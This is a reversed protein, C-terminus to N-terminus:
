RGQGQFYAAWSELKPYDARRWAAQQMQRAQATADPGLPPPEKKYDFDEGTLPHKGDRLAQMYDRQTQLNNRTQEKATMQRETRTGPVETWAKTEKDYKLLFSNANEDYGMRFTEANAGSGKVFVGKAIIDNPQRESRMWGPKLESVPVGLKDATRRLEEQQVQEAGTKQEESRWRVDGMWAPNEGGEPLGLALAADDKRSVTFVVDEARESEAGASFAALQKMMEGEDSPTGKWIVLKMIEKGAFNRLRQRLDPMNNIGNWLLDTAFDVRDQVYQDQQEQTFHKVENYYEPEPKGKIKSFVWTDSKTFNAYDAKLQPDIKELRTMVSDDFERLWNAEEIAWAEAALVPNKGRHQYEFVQRKRGIFGARADTLSAYRERMPELVPKGNEDYGTIRHGSAVTGDGGLVADIFTEPKLKSLMDLLEDEDKGKDKDPDLGAPLWGWSQIEAEDKSDYEPNESKLSALARERYAAMEQQMTRARQIKGPDGSGAAQRAEREFRENLAKGKNLNRNWGAARISKLGSDITGQIGGIYEEPNIGRARLVDLYEQVDKKYVAEADTISMGGIPGPTAAKAWEEGIIKKRGAHAEATNRMNEPLIGNYDDLRATVAAPAKENQAYATQRKEHAAEKEERKAEV